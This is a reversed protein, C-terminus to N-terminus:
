EGGSSGACRWAEHGEVEIGAEQLGLQPLESELRARVAKLDRGVRADPRPDQGASPQHSAPEVLVPPASVRLQLGETLGVPQPDGQRLPVREEHRELRAGAKALGRGARLGDDLGSQAADHHAGRIGIRAMAALPSGM